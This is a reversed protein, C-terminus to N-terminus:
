PQAEQSSKRRARARVLASQFRPSSCLQQFKEVGIPPTMLTVRFHLILESVEDIEECLAEFDKRKWVRIKGKDFSEPDISSRRSVHASVSYASLDQAACILVGEPEEPSYGWLGHALANRQKAASTYLAILVEFTERQEPTLSISAVARLADKQANASVLSSFMAMGPAPNTGLMFLLLHGLSLELVSHKAIAEMGWAALEPRQARPTTSSAGIAHRTNERLPQPMAPLDGDLAFVDRKSSTSLRM